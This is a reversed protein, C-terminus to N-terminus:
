KSEPNNTGQGDKGGNANDYDLGKRFSKWYFEFLNVQFVVRWSDMFAYYCVEIGNEFFDEFKQWFPKGFKFTGFGTLLKGGNEVGRALGNFFSACGAGFKGFWVKLKENPLARSLISVLLAGGAATLLFNILIWKIM